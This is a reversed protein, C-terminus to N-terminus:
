SPEGLGAHVTVTQVTAKLSELWSTIEDKINQENQLHEDTAPHVTFAVTITITQSKM